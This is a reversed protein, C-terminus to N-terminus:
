ALGNEEQSPLGYEPGAAAVAFAGSKHTAAADVGGCVGGSRFAAQVAWFLPM